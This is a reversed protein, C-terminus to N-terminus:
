DPPHHNERLPPHTDGGVGGLGRAGGRVVAEVDGCHPWCLVSLLSPTRM